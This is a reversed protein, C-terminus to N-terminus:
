VAVKRKFGDRAKDWLPSTPGTKDERKRIIIEMQALAEGIVQGTQDIPCRCVTAFANFLVELWRVALGRKNL